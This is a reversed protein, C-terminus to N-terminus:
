FSSRSEQAFLMAAGLLNADKVEAKLLRCGEAIRRYPFSRVTKEWSDRFFPIAEAIGGGVVLAQPAYAFLIAKTLEGLNKGFEEWVAKAEPDGNFAREALEAGTTNHRDRFWLSSCFHEYDSDLYPLSGVEGAGCLSGSYLKGDLILGSGVGTGLTIGVVDKLGRTAGYYYEGLVFCNCDNNVLTKIGFRNELLSKLHVEKWSPINCANYVIGEYPDVVSPVGIGIGDIQPSLLPAILSIIQDTVVDAEEQAKCPQSRKEIISNCDVVAARINTGGLDLAIKM